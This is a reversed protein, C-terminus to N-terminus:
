KLIVEKGGNEASRYVGNLIKQVMLGEEGPVDLATNNLCSLAWRKLKEVFLYNWNGDENKIYDPKIHVMAGFEDTYITAAEWSAGAKEGMVTFNFIDKEINAMFSSEIQMIAGNAFRVHAIALDEVTYTKYDWNPWPCWTNSPKNGLYTWCNGTVAVPKPEGMFFHAMEIAHVGIDIMPGGGQLKKQGFVGWNPVGKRRLAQCKVFLIKGFKEEARAQSLFETKAHFRSQFGVALKVKNKKAAAIMKECEEENMAMPKEVMIHCGANASDITPAMHVGNPTCIDVADPKIKKLMDNWKIFCQEPKAGYTKQMNELREPLIDCYGVIEVEPIETYAAMHAQAIGGCGIIAVRLKKGKFAKKKGTDLGLSDSSKPAM